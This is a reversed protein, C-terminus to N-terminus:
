SFPNGNKDAFGTRCVYYEGGCSCLAAVSEASVSGANSCEARMFIESGRKELKVRGTVDVNVDGGDTKKKIIIKEPIVPEKEFTAKYDAFAVDSLKREPSYCNRVVLGRPMVANLRDAVEGFSLPETLKVDLLEGTSESGTSLASAFVM